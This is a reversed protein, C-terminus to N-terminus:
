QPTSTPFEVDFILTSNAPIPVAGATRPESGYGLEPPIILRRVGFDGMGVVGEAFGPIVNSVGPTFLFSTSPQFVTSDALFGVIFPRVMQCWQVTDGTGLKLEIYRLGTSTVVTDGRTEVVSSEIPNCDPGSVDNSCAALAFAAACGAFLTHSKM